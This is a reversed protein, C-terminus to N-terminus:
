EEEHPNEQEDLTPLKKARASGFDSTESFTVGPARGLAREAVDKRMDLLTSVTPEPPAEKSPKKPLKAKEM